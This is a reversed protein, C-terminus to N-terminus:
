GGRLLRFVENREPGAKPVLLCLEGQVEEVLGPWGGQGLALAEDVAVIVLVEPGAEKLAESLETRTVTRRYLPYSNALSEFVVRSSPTETALEEASSERDGENSGHTVVTALLVTQFPPLVRGTGILVPGPHQCLLSHMFDLHEIDTETPWAALLTCDAGLDHVARLNQPRDGAEPSFAQTVAHAGETAQRVLHAIAQDALTRPALGYVAIRHQLSLERGPNRCSWVRVRDPRGPSLALATRLVVKQDPGDLIAVVQTATQDHRTEITDPLARIM